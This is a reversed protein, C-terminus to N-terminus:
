PIAIWVVGDDATVVDIAWDAATWGRGREDEFTVVGGTTLRYGIADNTTSSQIYVTGTNVTRSDKMGFFVWTKFRTTANTGIAEPVAADSVTKSGTKFPEDAMVILVGAVLALLIALITHKM